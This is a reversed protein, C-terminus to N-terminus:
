KEKILKILDKVAEELKDSYIHHLSDAAGLATVECPMVEPRKEDAHATYFTQVIANAEEALAAANEITNQIGELREITKDNM